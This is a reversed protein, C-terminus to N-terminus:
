LPSLPYWPQAWPGPDEPEATDELPGQSSELYDLILTRDEDTFPWLHHKEQMWTLTADWGERSLRTEVVIQLSHCVACHAEVLERGPGPSLEPPGERAPPRAGSVATAVALGAVVVLTRPVARM